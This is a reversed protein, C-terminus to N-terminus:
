YTDLMEPAMLARKDWRNYALSDEFHYIYFFVVIIMQPSLLEFIM